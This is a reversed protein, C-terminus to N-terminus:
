LATSLAQTQLMYIIQQKENNNPRHLKHAVSKRQGCIWLGKEEYCVAPLCIVRQQCGDILASALVAGLSM